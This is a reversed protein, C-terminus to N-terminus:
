HGEHQVELIKPTVSEIKDLNEKHGPLDKALAKAQEFNELAGSFNGEYYDNMGSYFLHLFRIDDDSRVAIAKNLMEKAKNYYGSRHYSKAAVLFGGFRGDKYMSSLIHDLGEEGFAEEVLKEEELLFRALLGNKNYSTLLDKLQE